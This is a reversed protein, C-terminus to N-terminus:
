TIIFTITNGDAGLTDMDKARLNKVANSKVKDSSYYIDDLNKAKYLNPWSGTAFTPELDQIAHQGEHAMTNKIIKASKTPNGTITMTRPNYQGLTGKDTAVDVPPLDQYAIGSNNKGNDLQEYTNLSPNDLNSKKLSNYRPTINFDGTPIEQKISVM